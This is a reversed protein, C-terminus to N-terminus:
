DRVFRPSTYREIRLVSPHLHDSTPCLGWVCLVTRRDARATLGAAMDAPRGWHPLHPRTLGPGVPSFDHVAVPNVALTPRQFQRGRRWYLM